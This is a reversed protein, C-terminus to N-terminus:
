RTSTKLQGKRTIWGKVIVREHTTSNTFRITVRRGNDKTVKSTWGDAASVDGIRIKGGVEEFRVDGAGKADVRKEHTVMTTTTTTPATTTPSGNESFAGGAVTFSSGVGHGLVAVGGILVASILAVLLAYEVMAAGRERDISGHKSNM